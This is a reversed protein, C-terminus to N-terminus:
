SGRFHDEIKGAILTGYRLGYTSVIVEKILLKELFAILVKLGGEITYVRKGLFPYEVLLEEM